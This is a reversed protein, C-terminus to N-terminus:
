GRPAEAVCSSQRAADQGSGRGAWGPLRPAAAPSGPSLTVPLCARCYVGRGWSRPTLYVVGLEVWPLQSQAMYLLPSVAPEWGWWLFPKLAKQTCPASSYLPSSSTQGWQERGGAWVWSTSPPRQTSSTAATARLAPIAGRTRLPWMMSRWPATRSSTCGALLSAM